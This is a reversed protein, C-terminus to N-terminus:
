VNLMKRERLGALAPDRRAQWRTRWGDEVARQVAVMGRERAGVRLLADAYYL